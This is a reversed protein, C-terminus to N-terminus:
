GDEEIVITLVVNLVLEALKSAELSNDMDEFKRHLIGLFFFFWGVNWIFLAEGLNGDIDQTDQVLCHTLMM